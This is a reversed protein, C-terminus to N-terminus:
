LAPCSRLFIIGKFASPFGNWSHEEEEEERDRKSERQEGLLEAAAHRIRTPGHPRGCRQGVHGCQAPVDANTAVVPPCGPLYPYGTAARPGAGGGIRRDGRHHGAVRGSRARHIPWSQPRMSDAARQLGILM